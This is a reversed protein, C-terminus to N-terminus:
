SVTMFDHSLETLCEAGNEGLFLVDELRIGFRGPLYIGPEDSFVNGLELTRQNGGVIYPHEHVERGIGHGLRHTFYDGYGAETIVDRAKKDLAEATMGARAAFFATENAERVIDYIERFGEPIKKVVVTRTIDSYYGEYSGGFDFIVVDGEKIVTQDAMHHPHASNEGAAALPNGSCKLGKKELCERLRVSVELETRGEIGESIMQLFAEGSLKQATRLAEYERRTKQARLPVMVEDALSWEWDAFQKQLNFYMEATMRNGVAARRCKQKGSAKGMAEATKHYPNEEETWGIFIMSEKIGESLDSFEFSPATFFAHELTLTLFIPRELSIGNFGTMYELDASPSLFLCDVKQKKMKERARNLNERINM